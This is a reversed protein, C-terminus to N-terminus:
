ASRARVASPGAGQFLGDRARVLAVAPNLHVQLARGGLDSELVAVQQGGFDLVVEFSIESSITCSSFFSQANKRLAASCTKQGCTSCSYRSSNFPM